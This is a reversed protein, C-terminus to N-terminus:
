KRPTSDEVLVTVYAEGAGKLVATLHNETRLSPITATAFETQSNLDQSGIIEQDNVRISAGTVRNGGARDGNIVRLTWPAESGQVLRFARENSRPDVDARFGMVALIGKEMEFGAPGLRYVFAPNRPREGPGPREIVSAAIVRLSGKHELDYVAPELLLTTDRGNDTRTPTLNKLTTGDWKLIWGPAARGGLFYVIAEPRGDFDLDRSSMECGTGRLVWTDPNDQAVEFTGGATRRLVRIAGTTRDTYAAIVLAPENTATREIVRYCSLREDENPPKLRDIPYFRDVVQQLAPDPAQAFLFVAAVVSLLAKM